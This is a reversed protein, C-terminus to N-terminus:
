SGGIQSFDECGGWGSTAADPSASCIPTRTCDQGRCCPLLSTLGATVRFVANNDRM